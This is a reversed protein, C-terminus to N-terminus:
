DETTLDAWGNSRSGKRFLFHLHFKQTAVTTWNCLLGVHESSQRSFVSSQEHQEFAGVASLELLQLLALAQQGRAL